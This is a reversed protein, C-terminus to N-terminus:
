EEEGALGEEEEAFAAEEEAVGEEETLGEEEGLGWEDESILGDGDGDWEGFDGGVGAAGFEEENLFGDTDTDWLGFGEEQALAVSSALALSLGFILEKKM